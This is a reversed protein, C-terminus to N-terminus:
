IIHIGFIETTLARIDCKGGVFLDGPARQDLAHAREGVSSNVCLSRSIAGVMLTSTGSPCDNCLVQSPQDRYTGWPCPRCGELRGSFPESLTFWESGVPCPIDPLLPLTLLSINLHWICLSVVNKCSSHCVTNLIRVM